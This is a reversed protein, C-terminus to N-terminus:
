INNDSYILKINNNLLEKELKKNKYLIAMKKGEEIAFNLYDEIKDKNVLYFYRDNKFDLYAYDKFTKNEM